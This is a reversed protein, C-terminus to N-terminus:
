SRASRCGLPAVVTLIGIAKPREADSFGAPSLRWPCRSDRAWRARGRTLEASVSPAGCSAGLVGGARGAAAGAASWDWALGTPLMVARVRPWRGRDTRTSAYPEASISLPAHEPDDPGLGVVVSLSDRLMWWRGARM